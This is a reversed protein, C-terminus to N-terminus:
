HFQSVMTYLEEVKSFRLSGFYSAWSGFHALSQASGLVCHSVELKQDVGYGSSEQTEEEMIQEPYNLFFFVLLKGLNFFVYFM